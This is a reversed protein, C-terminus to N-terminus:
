AMNQLADFTHPLNNKPCDKLINLLEIVQKLISLKPYSNSQGVSKSASM